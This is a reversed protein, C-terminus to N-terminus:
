FGYEAIITQAQELVPMAEDRYTNLDSQHQDIYSAQFRAQLDGLVQATGLQDKCTVDIEAIRFREEVNDPLVPMLIQSSEDPQIGQATICEVWAERANAWDESAVAADHSEMYGRDVVTPQNPDGHLPTYTPLQDSEQACVFFRDWWEDPFNEELQLLREDESDPPLDYAYTQATEMSWIGLTRDPLEQWQDWDQHARPYEFGQEEMCEAIILQNAREVTMADEGVLAYADLPMRMTMTEFDLLATADPHDDASLGSCGTLATLACVGGAFVAFVSGRQRHM